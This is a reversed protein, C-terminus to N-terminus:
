LSIQFLDRTLWVNRSLVVVLVVFLNRSSEPFNSIISLFNSKFDRSKESSVLNRFFDSKQSLAIWSCDDLLTKYFSTRIFKALNVSFFGTGSVIGCTNEQSNQSTELTNRAISSITIFTISGSNLNTGRRIFCRNCHNWLDAIVVM